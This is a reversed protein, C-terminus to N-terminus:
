GTGNTPKPEASYLWRIPKAMTQNFYNIFALVRARLDEV